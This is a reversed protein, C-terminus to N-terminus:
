RISTEASWCCCNRRTSSSVLAASAAARRALVSAISPSCLRDRLKVASSKAFCCWGECGQGGRLPRAASCPVTPLTTAPVATGGLLANGGARMANLGSGPDVESRALDGFAPESAWATAAVSFRPPSLLGVSLAAGSSPAFFAIAGFIPVGCGLGASRFAMASSRARAACALDRKSTSRCCSLRARSCRRRAAISCSSAASSARSLTRLASTVANWQAVQRRQVKVRVRVQTSCRWGIVAPFVM